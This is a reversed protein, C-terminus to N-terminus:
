AKASVPEQEDDNCQPCFMIIEDDLVGLTPLDDYGCDECVFDEITECLEKFFQPDIGTALLRALISPTSETTM